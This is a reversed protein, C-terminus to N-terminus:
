DGRRRNAARLERIYAKLNAWGDPDTKIARNVAMLMSPGDNYQRIEPKAGPLLKGNDDYDRLLNYCVEHLAPVNLVCVNTDPRQVSVCGSLLELAMLLPILRIM